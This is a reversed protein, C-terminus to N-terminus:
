NNMIVYSQVYNTLICRSRRFKIEHYRKFETTQNLGTYSKSKNWSICNSIMSGFNYNEFGCV